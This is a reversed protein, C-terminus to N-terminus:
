LKVNKSSKNSAKIMKLSSDGTTVSNNEGKETFEDLVHAEIVALDCKEYDLTNEPNVRVEGTPDMIFSSCPTLSGNCRCKVSELEYVLSHNGDKDHGTFSGVAETITTNEKVTVSAIPQFEPREDNVDLVSVEVMVEAKEQELDTAEVWLKFQKRDTEYNLEIDPDVTIEGKYGRADTFARIIFSGFSGDIIRFSIRNFDTTQDLDKAYVSGVYAGSQISFIFILM